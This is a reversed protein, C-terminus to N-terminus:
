YNKRNTQDSRRSLLSGTNSDRDLCLEEPSSSIDPSLVVAGFCGGFGFISRCSSERSSSMFAALISCNDVGDDGRELFDLALFILQRQAGVM